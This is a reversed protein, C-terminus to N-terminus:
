ILGTFIKSGFLAMPMVIGPIFLRLNCRTADNEIKFSMGSVSHGLEDVLQVETWYKKQKGTVVDVNTHTVSTVLSNNAM